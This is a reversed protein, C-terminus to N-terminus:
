TAAVRPSRQKSWALLRIGWAGLGGWYYLYDITQIDDYYYLEYWYTSWITAWIFYIAVKHLIRWQRATLKNRWHRFSTLVMAFLLLYGPVQSILDTLSSPQAIYYDWYGIVMWLIFFLQWAMASAFCLGINKRNRLLWRSFQGPFVVLLSSAAFALYLWPISSRVSFQIMSSVGRPSSLDVTTMKFLVAISIPIVILWYLNWGNLAKLKLITPQNDAM